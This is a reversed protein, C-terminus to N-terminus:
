AFILLDKCTHYDGMIPAGGGPPFDCPLFGLKDGHRSLLRRAEAKSIKAVLDTGVAMDVYCQM